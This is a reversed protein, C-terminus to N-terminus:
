YKEEGRKGRQGGGSKLKGEIEEEEERRGKRQGRLLRNKSLFARRAWPEALSEALCAFLM